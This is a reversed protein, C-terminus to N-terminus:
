QRKSPSVGPHRAASLQQFKRWFILTIRSDCISVHLDLIRRLIMTPSSISSKNTAHPPALELGVPLV